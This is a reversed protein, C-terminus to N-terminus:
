GLSDKGILVCNIYDNLSTKINYILFVYKWQESYKLFYHLSIFYKLKNYWPIDNISTPLVVEDCFWKPLLRCLWNLVLFLVRTMACFPPSAMSGHTTLTLEGAVTLYITDIM